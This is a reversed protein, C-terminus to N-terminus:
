IRSLIVGCLNRNLDRGGRKRLDEQLLPMKKGKGIMVLEKDKKLGTVFLQLVETNIKRIM